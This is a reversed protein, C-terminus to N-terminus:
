KLGKFKPLALASKAKENKPDIALIRDYFSKSLPYDLSIFYNYSGMYLFAEILEKQYKASDTLAKEM